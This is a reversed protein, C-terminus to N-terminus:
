ICIFCSAYNVNAIHLVPVGTMRELALAGEVNNVVAEPERGIGQLQAAVAQALDVVKIAHDVVLVTLGLRCGGQMIVQASLLLCRRGPLKVQM